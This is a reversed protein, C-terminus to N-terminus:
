GIWVRLVKGAEDVRVNVRNTDMEMTAMTDAKWARVTKYHTELGVKAEELTKGVYQEFLKKDM